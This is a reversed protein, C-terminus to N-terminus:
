QLAEKEREYIKSFPQSPYFGVECGGERGVSGSVGM